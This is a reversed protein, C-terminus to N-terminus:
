LKNMLYCHAKSAASAAKFIYRKDNKLAKLWSAIYSEHQVEGDIGLDAMLFASGLEAVLEEKAYDASGFKGKMERNLRKKGGSWHVLEHLGTAYFNAADSFLHREPLWVEDTSPQFFANQGKEIINAGSKWLLNEAQPLPDFTVEPAVTEATLSLGDIQEVNFVTFTKLMPIHETDGADNEKELTTYFIATTGHEGKRVQGGAAQSQKYTMWRSDSFGQKSASCWLLMINMGSYAVGTAYNSPLGSMGPVRQWPCSWPKVGAELAAIISDTVTQYIDTRTKSLKTKSSGSPDLPSVSTAAAANPARTLSTHLSNTM